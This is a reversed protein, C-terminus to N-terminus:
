SPRRPERIGPQHPIGRRTKDFPVGSSNPHRILFYAIRGAREIDGATVADAFSDRLIAMPATPTVPLPPRRFAWAAVTSCSAAGIPVLVVSIVWLKGHAHLGVLASLAAFAPWVGFIFMVTIAVRFVREASM